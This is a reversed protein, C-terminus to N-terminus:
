LNYDRKYLNHDTYALRRDSIEDFIVEFGEQEKLKFKKIHKPTFKFIPIDDEWRSRGGPGGSKEISTM